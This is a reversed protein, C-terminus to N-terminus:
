KIRLTARLTPNAKAHIECAFINGIKSFEQGM